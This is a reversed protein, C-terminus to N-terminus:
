LATTHTIYIGVELEKKGKVCTCLIISLVISRMEIDMISTSQYTLIVDQLILPSLIIICTNPYGCNVKVQM